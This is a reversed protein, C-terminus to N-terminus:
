VTIETEEEQFVHTNINKEQLFKFIKFNDLKGPSKVKPYSIIKKSYKLKIPKIGGSQRKFNQKNFRIINLNKQLLFSILPIILYIFNALFVM